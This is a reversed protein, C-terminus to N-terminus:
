EKKLVLLSFNSFGIQGCTFMIKQLTKYQIKRDAEILVEGKFSVNTSNRAIRETTEKRDSLLAELEPVNLEDSGSLDSLTAIKQGEVMIDNKSISIKLALEPKKKATSEPLALDNSVTVVEGETSFSMILFVLLITMIDVLSTIQLKPVKQGTGRGKTVKKRNTKSAPFSM